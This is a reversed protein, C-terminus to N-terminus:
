PPGHSNFVRRCITCCYQFDVITRRGKPILRCLTRRYRAAQRHGISGAMNPRQPKMLVRLITSHMQPLQHGPSIGMKVKQFEAYHLVKNGTKGQKHPRSPERAKCKAPFMTKRPIQGAPIWCQSMWDPPFRRWDRSYKWATGHPHRIATGLGIM